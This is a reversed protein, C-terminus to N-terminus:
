RTTSSFSISFQPCPLMFIIFSLNQAPARPWAASPSLTGALPKAISSSANQAPALPWAPNVSFSTAAHPQAVSSPSPVTILSPGSLVLESDM